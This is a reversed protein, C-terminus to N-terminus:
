KESEKEKNKIFDTFTQQDKASLWDLALTVQNAAVGEAGACGSRYSFGHPLLAIELGLIKNPSSWALRYVTVPDATKYYFVHPPPITKTGALRYLYDTLEFIKPLERVKSM